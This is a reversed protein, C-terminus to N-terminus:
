EWPEDSSKFDKLLYDKLVSAASVLFNQNKQDLKVGFNRTIDGVLKVREAKTIILHSAHNKSDPKQDILTAFILPAAQFLSEDVYDLAARIKPVEAALAAYDVGRKPNPVLFVSSIDILRQHLEIKHEYFGALNPIITEFPVNLRMTKLRGVQARLEFQIRTSTYVANAFVEEKPNQKQQQEAAARINEIATIERVYETVFALHSTEWDDAGFASSTGSLVLAIVASRLLRM